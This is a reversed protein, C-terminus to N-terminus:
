LGYIESYKATAYRVFPHHSLPRGTAQTVIEAPTLKRGHQHVYQRMWDLLAGFRGAAMEELLSPNQEVAAEYFQAAYLNGLTYTPFYGFGMMTWHIDQLVGQRDTPPVIGLFEKMKQNWAAPLDAVVLRGALLAQELEFRLIIHMNYTLEDAEVRIFGPEVKNVARYFQEVSVQGLQSPFFEQVRPLHVRWFGRSRGVFNEVLRSQSEDLGASTEEALPTRNLAPHVNQVYMAHGSEHLTAFMAMGLFYPDYRTTIRVDNPSLSTSFPHVATALHGRDFDYGVATALYHALQAQRAVDFPQRLIRNDVALRRRGVAQYLPILANKAAEFIARVDATKAGPEYKDLLADYLDDQYGYLRAMERALEVVRELWPQFLAFNDEARAQKWVATAQNNAATQQAVFAAPLKRASAYDRSLFRVLSAELSHYAVGNLEAAAAEILEGMEDSTFLAHSLKRLTTIQDVRDADGGRPMVTERDWTLVRAAKRLDYIEHVKELLAQYKTAM